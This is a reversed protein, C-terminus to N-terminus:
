KNVAEMKDLIAKVEPTIIRAATSTCSELQDNDSPPQTELDTDSAVTTIM